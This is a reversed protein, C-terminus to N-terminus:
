PRDRQDRDRVAPASLYLFIALAGSGWKRSPLPEIETRAGRARELYRGHRGRARSRGPGGYMLRMGDIDVIQHSAEDRRLVSVVHLLL